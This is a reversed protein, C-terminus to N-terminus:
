CLNNFLYLWPKILSKIKTSVTEKRHKKNLYNPHYTWFIKGSDSVIVPNVLTPYNDIPNDINNLFSKIVKYYPNTPGSVIIVYEPKFEKYLYTLYESSLELINEHNTPAGKSEKKGAILTNTWLINDYIETKNISLIEKIFKWYDKGTAGNKLFTEYKDELWDQDEEGSGWTNTEQGIYMAKPKLEAQKPSVLLPSSFHNSKILNFRELFIRNYIRINM